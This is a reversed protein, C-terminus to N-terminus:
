SARSAAPGDPTQPATGPERTFGLGRLGEKVCPLGHFVARVRDGMLFNDLALAAAGADIGVMDRGVWRRDVNLTSLGYRGGPCLVRDAAARRVNGLVAGPHHARSALT